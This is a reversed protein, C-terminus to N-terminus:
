FLTLRRPLTQPPEKSVRWKELDTEWRVKENLNSIVGSVVYVIAYLAAIVTVVQLLRRALVSIAAAEIETILFWTLLLQGLLAGLVVASALLLTFLYGSLEFEKNLVFAKPLPSKKREEEEIAQLLEEPIDPKRWRIGNYVAPAIILLGGVVLAMTAIEDETFGKHVEPFIEAGKLATLLGAVATILTAWSKTFDVGLGTGFEGKRWFVPLYDREPRRRIFFHALYAFYSVFVVVISVLFPIFLSLNYPDKLAATRTKPELKLTLPLTGSAVREEGGSAKAVLM